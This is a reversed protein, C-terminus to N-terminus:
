QRLGRREDLTEHIAASYYVNGPVSHQLISTRIIINAPPVHVVRRTTNGGASAPSSSM